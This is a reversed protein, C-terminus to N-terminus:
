DEWVAAGAAQADASVDEDEDSSKFLERNMEADPNVLGQLQQLENVLHRCDERSEKAREMLNM